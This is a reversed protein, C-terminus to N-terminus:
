KGKPIAIPAEGGWKIGGFGATPSEFSEQIAQAQATTLCIEQEEAVIVFDCEPRGIESGVFISGSITAPIFLLKLKKFFDIM